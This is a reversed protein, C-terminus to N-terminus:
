ARTPNPEGFDVNERAQFSLGAYREKQWCTRARRLEGTQDIRLKVWQPLQDASDLVIRAGRTSVDLVICNIITRDSLEIRGFRYVTQRPESRNNEVAHPMDTQMRERSAIAALRQNIRTNNTPM